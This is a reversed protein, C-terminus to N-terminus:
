EQFLTIGGKHIHGMLFVPLFACNLSVYRLDFYNFRLWLILLYQFAFCVSLFFYSCLVPDELFCCFHLYSNRASVHHNLSIISVPFNVATFSNVPLPYPLLHSVSSKNSYSLNHVDSSMMKVSLTKKIIDLKLLPM